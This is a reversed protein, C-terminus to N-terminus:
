ELEAGLHRQRAETCATRDYRLLTQQRSSGPPQTSPCGTSSAHQELSQRLAERVRARIEDSAGALVRAAAGTNASFETAPDVDGGLVLDHDVPECVADVFGSGDLVARLRIEDALSFPGPEHAPTPPEPGVVTAAAAIPVTWWSNLERDRFCVLM